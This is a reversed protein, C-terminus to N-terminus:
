LGEVEFGRERLRTIVADRSAGRSIAERAQAILGASALSEPARPGAGERFSPGNWLADARERAFQLRRDILAQARKLLRDREPVSLSPVAQLEMLIAREGETPNSGFISKMSELAQGLM